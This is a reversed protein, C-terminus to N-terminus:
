MRVQFVDKVAREEGDVLVKVEGDVMRMGDATGSWPKGTLNDIGDLKRGLFGVALGQLNSRNLNQMQELTTFQAMQAVFAQNDMPQLPDQYQLQKILLKFFADKGLSRKDPPNKFEPAKGQYAAATSGTGGIQPGNM